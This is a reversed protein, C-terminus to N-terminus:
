LLLLHLPLLLVCLLYLPESPAFVNANNDDEILQADQERWEGTIAPQQHSTNLATGRFWFYVSSASHCCWDTVVLSEEDYFNCTHTLEKARFPGHKRLHESRRLKGNSIKNWFQVIFSEVKYNIIYQLYYSPSFFWASSLTILIRCQFRIRRNLRDHLSILAFFDSNTNANSFGLGM